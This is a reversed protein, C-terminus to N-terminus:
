ARVGVIQMYSPWGYPYPLRLDIAIPQGSVRAAVLLTFMATEAEGTDGKVECWYGDIVAYSCLNSMPYSTESCGPIYVQDVIKNTQWAM